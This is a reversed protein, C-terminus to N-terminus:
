PLILLNVGNNGIAGVVNEPVMEVIFQLPSSEKTQQATKLKDAVAANNKADINELEEATTAAEVKDRYAPDKLYSIGDKPQPVGPTTQVWREYAIRNKFRQDDDIMKGPQVTNVLILGIGVATVTTILYLSLTKAGLRGLKSVDTLSSVGGIISFLVLPVAIFKLLRIFITGFPDIWNITFENWGLWSSIFAWIIGAILGLIIKVHLPLKKM